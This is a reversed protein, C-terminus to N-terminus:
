RGPCGTHDAGREPDRGNDYFPCFGCSNSPYHDVQEWRHSQKLVDLQTLQQAIGFLRGLAQEAVNRDYDASWVFMDRLWGARPLFALCVKKVPRGHQEFLYGYIHTQIMYGVSPGDKIVKKMVDPGATKWDIVTEHEVSYLDSHGELFDGLVLTTETTWLQPPDQQDCWASFAADLWSHVATGMISAWPDFETNCAPIGALRYGIRRDCLDGIESPGIAVQKSRPNQSEYWLIVKTLKEKIMSSFPDGDDPEDFVLCNPHTTAPLLVPDMVAGCGLCNM